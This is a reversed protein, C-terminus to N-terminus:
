GRRSLLKTLTNIDQLNDFNMVTDVIRGLRKETFLGRASFRLKNEIDEETAPREPDGKPLNVVAELKSGDRRVIEVRAGRINAERDELSPDSIIEIRSILRRREENLSKGVDLDELTFSGRTLATAIAYPLSFKAEATSAPEYISGTLSIASPYVYALIREISALFGPDERRLALAADIAAHTHRCSPYLKFYCSSISYQEGLECAIGKLDAQDSFARIFGQRGSIADRPGEAGAEALRAALIGNFAAKAPQLPKSMQASQAVELIGAAQLAALGIAHDFKERPLKLLKAAVAAAAMTGVTGTTHFGRANHSPNITEAIRVFLDYGAVIAEIGERGGRPLAEALALAVPFVVVGPHGQAKRQGDDLDAGHGYAANLMAALPAPTKKRQFFASSERKGQLTGLAGMLAKNFASNIRYGAMASALYDLLLLKARTIVERPLDDFSLREIHAMLLDVPRDRM